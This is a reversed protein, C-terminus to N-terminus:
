IYKGKNKKNSDFMNMMNNLTENLMQDLDESLAPEEDKTPIAPIGRQMIQLITQLQNNIQDLAEKQTLATEILEKAYPAREKVKKKAIPHDEPFFISVRIKEM